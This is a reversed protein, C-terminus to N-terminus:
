ITLLQNVQDFNTQLYFHITTRTGLLEESVIDELFHFGSLFPLNLQKIGDSTGFPEIQKM